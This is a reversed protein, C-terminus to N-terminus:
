YNNLVSLIYDCIDNLLVENIKLIIDRCQRKDTYLRDIHISIGDVSGDEKKTKVVIDFGPMSKDITIVVQHNDFALVGEIERVEEDNIKCTKVSQFSGYPPYNNYIYVFFEAINDTSLIIGRRMKNVYKKLKRRQFKSIIKKIIKPLKSIHEFSVIDANVELFDGIIRDTNTSDM